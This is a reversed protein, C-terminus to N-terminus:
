RTFSYYIMALNISGPLIRRLPLITIAHANTYSTVTLPSVLAGPGKLDWSFESTGVSNVLQLAQNLYGDNNTAKYLWMAAWMLEDNYGSWSRYFEGVASEPVSDHYNGRFNDSKFTSLM